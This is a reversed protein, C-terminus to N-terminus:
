PKNDNIPQYIRTGALIDGASYARGIAALMESTWREKYVPYGPFYHILILPFEKQLISQILPTQDWVGARSLQTVEFPQIVLPRGQLTILGMYEDALIPGKTRAVIEELQSLQGSDEQRQRLDRVNESLTTRMLLGAQYVLLGLLIIRLSHIRPRKRSWALVCGVAMSLAACLELFYNVNSGIKGITLSSLTAGILYPATLPWLPNWRPILFLSLGGLGLLIPAANMLRDMNQELRSMAFENVNATIINFYFGGHTLINLILFLGSAMGGVLLALIFASRRNQAWLWFFASVPAALAYSQRTYITAVILIAAGVFRWRTTPQRVLLFLGAMSFALALFDIRLLSSWGVVYPFAMFILGSIIAALRDRTQTYITLALFIASAWASLESLARGGWLVPGFVRLFPILSVVYIPPYNSITYPLTSLGTRYINQGAALRMAQDILPAEGYDLPYRHTLALFQYTLCLLAAVSLFILLVVEFGSELTTGVSLDVKKLLPVM